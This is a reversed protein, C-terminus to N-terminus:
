HPAPSTWKVKSAQVPAGLNYNPKDVLTVKVTENPEKITDDKPQVQVTKTKVREPFSVTGSLAIYDAGPTATGSM